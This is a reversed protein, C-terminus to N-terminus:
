KGNYNSILPKKQNLPYHNHLLQGCSSMILVDM